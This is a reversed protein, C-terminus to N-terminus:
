KLSHSYRLCSTQRELVKFLKIIVKPLTFRHTQRELVKFLKIIM